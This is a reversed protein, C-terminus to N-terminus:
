PAIVNLGVICGTGTSLNTGNSYSVNQDVLAYAGASIGIGTNNTTLNGTIVSGSTSVYIGNSLNDSVVNGTIVCGAGSPVYIGSSANDSVMNGSIVCNSAAYIGYNNNTTTNNTIVSGDSSSIGNAGNGYATNGTMVSEGGTRLGFVGNKSATCDKVLLSPGGLSVGSDGNSLVRVGIIRHNKSNSNNSYIGTWRFNRITGNRIEINSNSNIIRIGSGVTGAAKGPGILSYGMLDITVDNSEITIAETNTVSFNITETLYYSRPESITLPLDSAKIPIRPEVEDLTKMIPGPAASPELSGAGYITSSLFLIGALFVIGTLRKRTNM